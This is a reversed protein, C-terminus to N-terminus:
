YGTTEDTIVWHPNVLERIHVTTDGPKAGGPFELRMICLEEAKGALWKEIRKGLESGRQVYGIVASTDNLTMLEIALYREEDTFPSRYDPVIRAYVRFDM